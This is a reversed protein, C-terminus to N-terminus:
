LYMHILYILCLQFPFLHLLLVDTVDFVMHLTLIVMFSADHYIVIAYKLRHM